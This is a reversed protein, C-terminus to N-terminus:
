NPTHTAIRTGQTPIDPIALLTANPLPTLDANTHVPPPELPEASHIIHVVAAKTILFMQETLGDCGLPTKTDADGDEV